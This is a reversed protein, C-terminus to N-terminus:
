ERSAMLGRSQIRRANVCEIVRIPTFYSQNEQRIAGILPSPSTRISSRERGGALPTKIGNLAENDEVLVELTAGENEILRFCSVPEQLGVQGVHRFHRRRRCNIAPNFGEVRRQFHEASSGGFLSRCNM